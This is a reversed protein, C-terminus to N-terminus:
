DAGLANPYPSLNPPIAGPNQKTANQLQGLTVLSVNPLDGQGNPRMYYYPAVTSANGIASSAETKNEPVVIVRAGFPQGGLGMGTQNAKLTQWNGAFPSQSVIRTGDSRQSYIDLFPVPAGVNGWNEMSGGKRLPNRPRRM